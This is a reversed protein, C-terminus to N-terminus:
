SKAPFTLSFIYEARHVEDDTGDVMVLYKGFSFRDSSVRAPSHTMRLGSLASILGGSAGGIGAGALTAALATGSTGVAVILGVGPVASIALGVLCGGIAGLMSGTIAASTATGDHAKYWVYDSMGAERPQDDRDADIAVVSIQDMSFGYSNLEKVAHEADQRNYCTGVARRNLKM